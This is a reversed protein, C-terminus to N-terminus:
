TREDEGNLDRRERINLLSLANNMRQEADRVQKRCRSMKLAAGYEMARAVVTLWEDRSVPPRGFHRDAFAEAKMRYTYRAM